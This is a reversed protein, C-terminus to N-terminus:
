KTVTAVLADLKHDLEVAVANIRANGFQGFISSPRDYELCTKGEDNEYHLLRLPAYLAARIDGQKLELAFLPNGIVYVMVKQVQGLLHLPLWGHNFTNFLMFGSPGAMAQIKARAGDPDTNEALSNYVEPDFRGLQRELAQAVLEFPKDAIVSVHSVLFRTDSM